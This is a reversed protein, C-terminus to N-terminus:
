KQVAIYEKGNIVKEKLVWSVSWGWDPVDITM